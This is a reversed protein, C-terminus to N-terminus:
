TVIAIKGALRKMARGLGGGQRRELLRHLWHHEQCREQACPLVLRRGQQSPRKSGRRLLQGRGEVPLDHASRETQLVSTQDCRAPLLSQRRRDRVQQKRRARGRELNSKGHCGGYARNIIPKRPKLQSENYALNRPHADHLERVQRQLLELFQDLPDHVIAQAFEEAIGVQTHLHALRDPRPEFLGQLGGRADRSLFHGLLKTQPPLCPMTGCRRDAPLAPHDPWSRSLKPGADAPSSWIAPRSRPSGAGRASRASGAPTTLIRRPHTASRRNPQGPLVGPLCVGSRGGSLALLPDQRQMAWRLQANRRRPGASKATPGEARRWGGSFCSLLTVVICCYGRLGFTKSSPIACRARKMSLIRM